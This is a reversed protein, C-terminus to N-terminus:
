REERRLTVTPPVVEVERWMSKLYDAKARIKDAEDRAEVDLREDALIEIQDAAERLWNAITITDMM